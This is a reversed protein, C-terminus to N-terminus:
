AMEGTTATTVTRPDRQTEATLQLFMQELGGSDAARLEVLAIRAGLAVQGVVDPAADCSLAGDATTTVEHGHERLAEGLRADDASRVRSGTTALLETKAGSAVIRGGGILVFDDALQEVEHLLHSSLLVTGGDDAFRRLMQRMWHIGAPDLGNAPEDLVLVRPRGLMAQAIGLRQRMGLSYNGVRRKAEKGDLGVMSLAEAVSSRPLGLTMASLTLAERATRGNHQASADLLVGVRRAPNPLDRYARGEVRASGSDPRTLGAVVRLTTSKGAGNPGLFGTVRGPHAVFSVDDVARVGRYTKTVREVEIM